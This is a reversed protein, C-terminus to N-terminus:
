ATGRPLVLGDEGLILETRVPLHLSLLPLRCQVCM